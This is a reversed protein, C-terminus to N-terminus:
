ATICVWAVAAAPMVGAIAAYIDADSIGGTVASLQLYQGGATAYGLGLGYGGGSIDGAIGPRRTTVFVQFPLALSGYGGAVGYGSAAGYGGTDQVRAPEFVVPARGTLNTLVTVISARTGRPRLVEAVMRTALAADSQGARRVLRTGFLDSAIGDLWIGSATAIRSQLRAFALLGYVRSFGTAFGALVAALVPATDPFWGGPLAARLRTVVDDQDGVPM